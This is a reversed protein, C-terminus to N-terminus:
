FKWVIQGFVSRPIQTAQASIFTPNFERHPSDVLNQGVISIELSDSARWALRADFTFYSPIPGATTSGPFYIGSAGTRGVFRPGLDFDIDKTVDLSSRLSVQQEPAHVSYTVTQGTINDPPQGLDSELLSYTGTLRWRGTVQWTAALETGYTEGSVSNAIVTVSQLYSPYHSYNISDSAGRLGRYSHVFATLDLSLQDLPQTRYGLEYAILEESSFDPDGLITVLTEPRPPIAPLVALNLMGYREIESPTRVARSVSAWFTQKETPTWALRAGPEWEFGTFNNHELKTGLTFRLTDPLLTIEDQGFINFIQEQPTTDLLGVAYDGNLDSANLRYGGGWVVEQRSGLQFRQRADLDLTNRTEHLLPLDLQEGDYYTQLTFDSQESFDHTWRGLMNGGTQRWMGPQSNVGPQALSVVPIAQDADMHYLDGQLTFHDAESPEHDLRFGTQMKWWADDAPAGNVRDLEGWDNYKAYVRYYTNDGLKGGYRVSEAAYEESGSGSSVLVGQTESAPKTVVSIVGNFANAGWLTAGPGRVVEIREIDEMVVDQAQWFTGSFLPSYISRGDILTLLSSSFTDNLGRVGVAWEHSDVRGVDVGPALRLADPITTSGSRRIDDQTIVSVAAATQSLTEEKKSVSTVKISMLQELSMSLLAHTANTSTTDDARSAPALLGGLMALLLFGIRGRDKKTPTVKSKPTILETKM